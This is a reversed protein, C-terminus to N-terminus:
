KRMRGFVCSDHPVLKLVAILTHSVVRYVVRSLFDGVISCRMGIQLPPQMNPVVGDRAATELEQILESVGVDVLTPLRPHRGCIDDRSEHSQQWPMRRCWQWMRFSRADCESSKEGLRSFCGRWRRGCLLINDHGVAGTGEDPLRRGCEGRSDGDHRSRCM